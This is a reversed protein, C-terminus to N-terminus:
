LNHDTRTQMGTQHMGQDEYFLLCRSKWLFFDMTLFNLHLGWLGLDLCYFSKNGFKGITKNNLSFFLFSFFCEVFKGDVTNSRCLNGM